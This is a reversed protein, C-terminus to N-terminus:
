PTSEQSPNSWPSSSAAPVAASGQCDRVFGTLATALCFFVILYGAILLAYQARDGSM